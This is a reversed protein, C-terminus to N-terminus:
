RIVVSGIKKSLEMEMQKLHQHTQFLTSQQSVDAKELDAQNQLLLRRIKRLKLYSIASEVEDMTKDEEMKLYRMLQEENGPKIAELFGKYDQQFLAQQYGTSQSLEKKWHDSQQYPFHLLSVALTSLDTDQSYVFFNKDIAQHSNLYERYTHILKVVVQNDILDEEPIESLIFEALMQSGNKKKNGHELLIRAIEKEQLDDKFLLNFTYDDFNSEEGKKANEEHVKADEFPLKKEEL